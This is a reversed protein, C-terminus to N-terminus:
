ITMSQPARDRVGCSASSPSASWRIVISFTCGTNCPDPEAFELPLWDDVPVLDRLSTKAHRLIEREGANADALATLDCILRRLRDFRDEMRRASSNLKPSIIIVCNRDRRGGSM